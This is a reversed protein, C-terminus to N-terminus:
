FSNGSCYLLADTKKFDRQIVLVNTEKGLINSLEYSIDTAKKFMEEDAGETLLVIAVDVDSDKNPKGRAYSGYLFSMAIDKKESFYKRLTEVLFIKDLQKM